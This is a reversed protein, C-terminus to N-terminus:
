HPGGPGSRQRLAEQHDRCEKSGALARLVAEFHGHRDAGRELDAARRKEGDTPLRGLTALYLAELVQDDSRKSQLLQDLLQDLRDAVIETAVAATRSVRWLKVTGDWSGSALWKGDPSFAVSFIRDKHGRLVVVQKGTAADWLIIEGPGPEDKSDGRRGSSSALLRGDPSFAVGLAQETHGKLVRVELGSAVDWVRVTRDWGASVVTKGDPAVALAEVVGEHGKMTALIKGSALDFLVIGGKGAAALVNGAPTVALAYIEETGELRRLERGSDADWVRVTRDSSASALLKGDPTFRVANVGRVPHRLIARVTGVTDRLKVTGDFEAAALVKGDPSFAISRVSKETHTTAVLKGTACDWLYVEGPKDATGGASSALLRGDPSFTVCWVSREHGRLTRVEAVPEAPAAKSDPPEAAKVDPPGVQAEASPIGLLGWSGAALLATAAVATAATKLKTLFMARLVGRALFISPISALGAAGGAFQVALHATARALAGPLQAAHASGALLGLVATVALGVGRRQLRQRLRQRAWALRSDITGRPCGLEAAAETNSKGELYCLVVAARYKHPLRSVEEDLVMRVDAELGQDDVAAVLEQQGDLSLVAHRQRRQQLRLVIRYAVKYLWSAVSERKGIAAARRALTLFAAQFADEADQEHRLMRRCLRFVAPGHRWVLLEFAAEDREAIFRALIDADTPSPREPRDVLWRLRRLLAALAPVSM